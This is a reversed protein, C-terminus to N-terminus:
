TVPHPTKTSPTIQLRVLSRVELTEEVRLCLGGESVNLGDALVPRQPELLNIGFRPPFESRVFSRREQVPSTTVAM